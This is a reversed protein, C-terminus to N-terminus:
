GLGRLRPLLAALDEVRKRPDGAPMSQMGGTMVLLETFGANITDQAKRLTEDATTFRMSISRRLTAPKRHAKICAADLAKNLAVSDEFSGANSHWVDAHRATLRLMREGKSGIWIPPHPRQVPKPEAIADKLEYFRGKYTSRPESWLLKMAKLSEDLMTVRDGASPFPLAFQTFEPENWGTGIGFELRGSSLHDVTVAIKAMLGPHRYLNGTVNLGMRVHKTIAATAGLFTWGDFIPAAPDSGLALLHDFGWIHDFGAQDGIRWVDLQVDIPHVQQSFKLGYRLPNKAAPM